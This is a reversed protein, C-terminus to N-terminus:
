EETAGCPLVKKPTENNPAYERKSQVTEASLTLCINNVFREIIFGIM